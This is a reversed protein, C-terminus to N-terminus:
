SHVGRALMFGKCHMIHSELSDRGRTWTKGEVYHWSVLRWDRDDIRIVDGSVREHVGGNYTYPLGLYFADLGAEGYLAPIAIVIDYHRRDWPPSPAEIKPALVYCQGNTIFVKVAMGQAQLRQVELTLADPAKM